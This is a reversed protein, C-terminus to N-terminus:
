IAMTDASWMRFYPFNLIVLALLRVMISGAFFIGAMTALAM